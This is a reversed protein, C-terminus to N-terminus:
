PWRTRRRCAPNSRPESGRVGLRGCDALCPARVGAKGQDGEPAEEVRDTDGGVDYVEREGAVVLRDDFPPQCPVQSAAGDDM